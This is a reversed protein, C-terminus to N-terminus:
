TTTICRKFNVTVGAQMEDLVEEIEELVRGAGSNSGKILMRIWSLAEFAGAVYDNVQWNRGEWCNVVMRPFIYEHVRGYKLHRHFNLSIGRWRGVGGRRRRGPPYLM